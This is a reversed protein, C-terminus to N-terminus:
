RGAPAPARAATREIAALVQPWAGEPLDHGMGDVIVLESGPAADATIKGNEPRVLPDDSGHVVCVPMRLRSLADVRSPATLVAALQRAVGDPCWMRDHSEASRARARAENFPFGTGAIVRSSQVGQEIREERTPPPPAMLVAMAEDTPLTMTDGGANSMISTLSLARDPHRIAILQAIMGGMSAGVIHASSIGLADLLAAADDAMDDLTYAAKAAGTMVAAADPAGDDEFKTSLGVDRNDYRIVHFGRAALQECFSPDWAILQGGLGMVLLMALASADGFTDYEIEIGNVGVRAM